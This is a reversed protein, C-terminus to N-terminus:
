RKCGINLLKLLIVGDNIYVYIRGAERHQQNSYLPAGIILDSHNDNNIDLVLLSAGFYEGPHVGKLTKIMEHSNFDLPFRM